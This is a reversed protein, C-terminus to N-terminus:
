SKVETHASCMTLHRNWRLRIITMKLNIEILILKLTISIKAINQGISLTWIEIRSNDDALPIGNKDEIISM